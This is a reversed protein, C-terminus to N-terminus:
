FGFRAGFQLQRPFGGGQLSTPVLFNGLRLDGSPNSFNARNTANFVEVFIDLTRAGGARVRYGGRLDLQAFGPGYAGNRGGENEVTIANAGTGSYTGAPLPDQAIGNRNADVNTNHITFPQGSMFRAIAGATLGPIWPLEFRGSLTATHRRDLNTPGENLDLNREALVQFDNPSTHIGNTNGRGYGLAYSLRAGWYNAFRREIQLNVGDFKTEGINEYIYVDSRFPPLGLQGAIGQVDVRSIPATRGTTQKIAPNLNYRLPMDLNTMHVYDGAFSLQRGLQREYGISIQHQQPLVRDPTDLWVTGTNRNLSGPPVLQNVLSRNLTPGNVLLPDTPFRGNSPGPDAQVVPFAAIFSDAFVPNILYTEFREIWQKQYFMGYGGRVVSNGNMSYAFGVRPQINNNDIPYANPDDFFPNWTENLPSVHLDYRVGLNLTLNSSLQWKDQVFMGLSHTRSIKQLMNPVRIELREPYTMPDAANFAQDTAFVFRGNTVRQDERYHEGYQYQAGLKLDHSGRAGPIFWSFTDDLSAIKMIRYDAYNDDAQDIFSLYELTPPAQTCDGTEQYLPQGRKPKEYVSSARLTNLKTGGMVWNYTGVL